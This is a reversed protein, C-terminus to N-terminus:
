TNYIGSAQLHREKENFVKAAIRRELFTTFGENLRFVLDCVGYQKINIFMNGICLSSYYVSTHLALGLQFLCYVKGFSKGTRTPSLTEQGVIHCSM